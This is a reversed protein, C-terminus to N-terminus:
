EAGCEFGAGTLQEGDDGAWTLGLERPDLIPNGPFSDLKFLTEGGELQFVSGEGLGEVTAELPTTTRPGPDTM